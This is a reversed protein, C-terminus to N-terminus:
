LAEGAAKHHSLFMRALDGMTECLREAFVPCLRSYTQYGSM